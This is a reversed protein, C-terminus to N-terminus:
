TVIVQAFFTDLDREIRLKNIFLYRPKQLFYRFLISFFIPRARISGTDCCFLNSEPRNLAKDVKALLATTLSQHIITVQDNLFLFPKKQKENLLLHRKSFQPSKQM